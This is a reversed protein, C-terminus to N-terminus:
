ESAPSSKMLCQVTYEPADSVTRDSRYQGYGNKGWTCRSDIFYVSRPDLNGFNEACSGSGAGGRTFQVESPQGYWVLIGEWVGSMLRVSYVTNDAQYGLGSM